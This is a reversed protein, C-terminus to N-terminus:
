LKKWTGDSKMQYIASEDVCLCSSGPKLDYQAAFEPLNAIDDTGDCNISNVKGTIINDGYIAMTKSRQTSLGVDAIALRAQMLEM